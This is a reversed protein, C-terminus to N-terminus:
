RQETFYIDVEGEPFRDSPAIVVIYGDRGSIHVPEITDSFSRELTGNFYLLFLEGDFKVQVTNPAGAGSNLHPSSTLDFLAEYRGGIVKGLAYRGENNIMVTLMTDTEKGDIIRRGQCIVFGYCAAAYGKPKSMLVTREVFPANENGWVTWVTYGHQSWYLTDNTYFRVTKLGANEGIEEFLDSTMEFVPTDANTIVDPNNPSICGMSFFTIAFILCLTIQIKM